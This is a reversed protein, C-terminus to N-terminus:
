EEKVAKCIRELIELTGLSDEGNLSLANGSCLHRYLNDQVFWQYKDIYSPIQKRDELVMYGPFVPDVIASRIEIMRGGERYDIKAKTGYIEMEAISYCEERGALFYIPADGFYLCVDPEPDSGEWFRGNRLVELDSIEGFLYRLLDIFHSGNNKIGKSYWVVGKIINGIIGSKIAQRIEAVGPECRRMYNVALKCKSAAAGEVMARGDSLSGTMPKECLVAIPGRDIIARWVRWHEATRVAIAYVEPSQALWLSSLDAYAPRNYKAEFRRRQVLDPDVGAVLEFGEHYAFASAHTLIHSDDMCGYDYEMGIRGLGVVVASFVRM